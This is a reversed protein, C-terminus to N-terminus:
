PQVEHNPKSKSLATSSLSPGLLWTPGDVVIREDGRLCFFWLLGLLLCKIALTRRIDRAASTKKKM